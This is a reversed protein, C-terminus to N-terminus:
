TKGPLHMLKSLACPLHNQWKRGSDEQQACFLHFLSLSRESTCSWHKWFQIIFARFEDYISRPLIIKSYQIYPASSPEVVWGNIESSATWNRKGQRQRQQRQSRNKRERERERIKDVNLLITKHWMKNSKWPVKTHAEREGAWTQTHLACYVCWQCRCCCNWRGVLDYFINTIGILALSFSSKTHGERYSLQFRHM